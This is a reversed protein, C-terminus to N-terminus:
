KRTKMIDDYAKQIEQAKETALKMMEEPLGKSVLKDPHHQSILKRYARKVEANTATASIGLVKYPDKTPPPPPRQYRYQRQQQYQAQEYGGFQTFNPAFGLTECILELIRRKNPGISGEAIAAQMQIEIFMRLLMRQNRCAERLNLLTTHLDFNPQKGLTFLEIARKQQESGLMMRKMIARAVKIESESVRGDAKAVHGMVSFTASFFVQQAKITQQASGSWRRLTTFYMGRDFYHGVIVGIIAGIPGAFLFGLLGGILKGWFM